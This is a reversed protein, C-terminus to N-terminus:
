IVVVYQQLQIKDTIVAHHLWVYPSTYPWRFTQFYQPPTTTISNCPIKFSFTKSRCMFSQSALEPGGVLGQLGLVSPGSKYSYDRRLLQLNIINQKINQIICDSCPSRVGSSGKKLLKGFKQPAILCIPRIITPTNPTNEALSDAGM